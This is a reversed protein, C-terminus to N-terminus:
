EVRLQGSNDLLIRRTTRGDPSRLTLGTGPIRLEVNGDMSVSLLERPANLHFIRFAGDKSILGFAVHPSLDNLSIGVSQDEAAQSSSIEFFQGATHPSGATLGWALTPPGTGNGAMHTGSATVRWRADIDDAKRCLFTAGSDRITFVGGQVVISDQFFNRDKEQASPPTGHAYLYRFLHNCDELDVVGDGNVDGAERNQANMQRWTIAGMWVTLVLVSLALLVLLRNM